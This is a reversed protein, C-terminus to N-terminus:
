FVGYFVTYLSFIIIIIVVITINYICLVYGLFM